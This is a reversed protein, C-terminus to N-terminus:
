STRVYREFNDLMKRIIPLERVIKSTSLSEGINKLTKQFDKFKGSMRLFPVRPCALVLISFEQLPADIASPLANSIVRSNATEM